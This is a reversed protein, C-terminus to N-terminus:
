KFWRESFYSKRFHFLFANRKDTGVFCFILVFSFLFFEFCVLCLLVFVVSCVYCNWYPWNGICHVSNNKKQNQKSIQILSFNSWKCCSGNYVAPVTDMTFGTILLTTPTYVLNHRLLHAYYYVYRRQSPITVGKKNSTRADGYYELAEKCSTFYNKHLLYACIM